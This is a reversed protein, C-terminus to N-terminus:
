FLSVDVIKTERTEMYFRQPIPPHDPDEEDLETSVGREGIWM